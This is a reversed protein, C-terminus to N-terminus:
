RQKARSQRRTQETKREQNDRLWALYVEDLERLVVEFVKIMRRDLRRREGYEVVRNWPIPGISYGFQRCSSLEWFATLYFEDGRILQPQDRYWAPVGGPKNKGGSSQAYQGSEVM